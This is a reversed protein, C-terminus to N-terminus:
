DNVKPVPGIKFEHSDHNPKQEVNKKAPKAKKHKKMKNKHMKKEGAKEVKAPAPKEAAPPTSDHENAMAPVTLALALVLAMM